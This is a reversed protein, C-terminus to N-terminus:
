LRARYMAIFRHVDDLDRSTIACDPAEIAVVDAVFAFEADLQDRPWGLEGEAIAEDARILAMVQQSVPIGCYAIAARASYFLRTVDLATAQAMAPAAALLTLIAAPLVKRM